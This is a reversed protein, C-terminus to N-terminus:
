FRGLPPGPTSIALALAEGTGAFAGETADWTADPIAKGEDYVFLLHDAHAGEMLASEDSALPFAEGTALHMNQTLLEKRPDFPQRGIASWHLRRAWKHVEPWLFKSLQRWASATIPIKWDDGDRTLSFRLIALAATATKGIGHSARVAVRRKDILRSLIDDQYDAPSGGEWDVCDHIFAVPDSRYTQQFRDYRSGASPRLTAVRQRNEADFDDPSLGNYIILALSAGM